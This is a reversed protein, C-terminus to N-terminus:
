GIVGRLCFGRYRSNSNVICGSSYIELHWSGEPSNTMPSSSWLSANYGRGNALTNWRDGSAPIFISKTSNVKSTFLMGNIGSGQYNEKWEHKTQKTLEEIQTKTPMHWDGGMETHVADDELDLITKGDETNYKTFNNGDGYKYNSWDFNYEENDYYGVTDGWAFYKGYETPKTAGVNCTAWLTGSPLGLNVYKYDSQKNEYILTSGYYVSSIEKGGYYISSINLNGLKIM